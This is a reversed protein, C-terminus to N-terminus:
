QAAGENQPSAEGQQPVQMMQELQMLKEIEQHDKLHLIVNKYGESNEIKALQGPESIAWGRCIQAQISHNDIDPDVAVSPGEEMVPQGDPGAIPSGDPGVKERPIPTSELLLDIEEYQKLRDAEGPIRFQPLGVAKKIFELNEPDTLAEIIAPNNTEMLQMITDKVQSWTIPLQEDAECEIDGIKGQLESKRIFVNIHKGNDDKKVFREDEVVNDIYAPIAKSFVIKWWIILMKWTSQLRQLSQARSMSYEAATKSGATAAGGFLSPMAGVVLQGFEQIKQAFPLVEGSLSATKIEYFADSMRKGSQIIGPYIAGPSVETQRYQDFNLVTPDAITQPIGHEITQLVLSVLENTIDQISTLLLGLPDHHLYDSLPNKTLTWHDDLLEEIPDEAIEENALVVKVGNPFNERVIEAEDEPLVNYSCPRLWCTRITVTNIPYEERYQPNLRGWREYPDYLGGADYGVKSQWDKNLERLEKFQELAEAYHIEHSYILYPCQAQTMAYNPVKVYLGGFVELIQRSKPEDTTKTLRRVTQTTKQLNPDLQAECEPCDLSPAIQDLPINTPRNEFVEDVENECGPCVYHDEKVDKYHDKKYTGFSKDEKNYCYCAILGETCYIFLAHVWLLIADNHKYILEGIQNGAKATSIDMPDDADDPSCTIPPVQVSLAAIISELYARFVNVPKDYYDNQNDSDSQASDNIQWDHAVESFWVHQFGDWYFKLRRWKRIQRDRVAREEQDFHDIISKLLSRTEESVNHSM